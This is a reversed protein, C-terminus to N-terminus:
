MYSGLGPMVRIVLGWYSCEIITPGIVANVTRDIATNDGLKFVAHSPQLTTIQLQPRMWASYSAAVVM